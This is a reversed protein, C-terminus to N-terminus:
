LCSLAVLAMKLSFFWVFKKALGTNECMNFGDIPFEKKEVERLLSWGMNKLMLICFDEKKDLMKAPQLPLLQEGLKAISCLSSM